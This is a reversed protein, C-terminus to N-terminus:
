RRVDPNRQSVSTQIELVPGNSAQAEFYITVFPQLNDEQGEGFAAFTLNSIDLDSSTLEYVDGNDNLKIQNDELFFEQCRGQQLANEFTISPGAIKYNSGRDICDGNTDKEAMRLAKVMYELSYSIQSLSKKTNFIRNETRLASVFIGAVVTILVAFMGSVILIEILTFGKKVM